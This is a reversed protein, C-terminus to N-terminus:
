DKNNGYPTLCMGLMSMAENEQLYRLPFMEGEKNTAEM